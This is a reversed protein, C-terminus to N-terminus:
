PATEKFRQYRRRGSRDKWRRHMWVWQEPHRRIQAEIRKTIEEVGWRIRAAEDGAPFELPAELEVAFRRYGVRWLFAPVVASGTRLALEVAGTPTHAPRGFFPAQIGAARTNQDVLIGLWAGKRLARVMKLTDAGRTYLVQAGASERLGRVWLDLRPDILARAVALLPIGERAALPPLLEWNGLHATMFMLPRGERRPADLHQMGIMDFQGGGRKVLEEGHLAEALARALHLFVGRGIRRRQAARKEEGLALALHALTRRRQTWLMWWALTAVVPALRYLLGLPMRRLVRLLWGM